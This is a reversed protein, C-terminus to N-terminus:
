MDVGILMPDVHLTTLPGFETCHSLPADCDYARPTTAARREPM